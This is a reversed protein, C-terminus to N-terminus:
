NLLAIHSVALCTSLKGYIPDCSQIGITSHYFTQDAELLLADLVSSDVFNLEIEENPLFKGPSHKQQACHRRQEDECSVHLFIFSIQADLYM